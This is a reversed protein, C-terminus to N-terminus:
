RGDQARRANRLTRPLGVEVGSLFLFGRRSVCNGIHYYRRLVKGSGQIEETYYDGKLTLPKYGSLDLSNEKRNEVCGGRGSTNTSNTRKMNLEKL